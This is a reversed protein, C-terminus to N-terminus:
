EVAENKHVVGDKMVFSVKQLVKIDKLPDADVAVLDAKKGAEVTGLEDLKGLLKAAHYTASKIAEMAPMGAEVMYEFEKANRGHKFVGADTGFAIAVGAKYGRAFTQQIVPGIELAKPVVLAHYYGEIKASDAVSKGATITPVWYTSHKKMLEFAEDDMYTGHEISAVGARIARKIGEAGHAHAAVKKGFDAATQVIVRIEEETFQPIKGASALSLVGATATIKVHDAGRKIALLAARRASEVGNVVGEEAGPVGLIDERYSNTPDAHGGLVALSKGAVFMRPGIIDGRNVANRLALDVGEAGGLDRVTTFGAMLTAKLYQTAILAFDAPYLQFRKLYGAKETQSALHTHMDMLGPLVFKNKLDIVQDGSSPATFGKEIATFKGKEIIVTVNTRPSDSVGDILCGAHVLTRQAHVSLPTFFVLPIILLLNKLFCRFLFRRM